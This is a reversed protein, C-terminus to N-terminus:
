PSACKGMGEWSRLRIRKGKGRSRPAVFYRYEVRNGFSSMETKALPQLAEGYGFGTLRLGWRWAPQDASRPEFQVGTKTFETRFNQARTRHSIGTASGSM